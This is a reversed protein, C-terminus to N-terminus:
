IRRGRKCSFPLSMKQEEHCVMKKARPSMTPQQPKTPQLIAHLTSAVVGGTAAAVVVACMRFLVDVTVACVCGKEYAGRFGVAMADGIKSLFALMLPIGVFAYVVCVMQGM